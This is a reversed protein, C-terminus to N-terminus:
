GRQMIVSCSHLGALVDGKSYLGLSQEQLAEIWVGPGATPFLDLFTRLLHFLM